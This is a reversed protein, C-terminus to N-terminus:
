AQEIVEVLAVADVAGLGGLVTPAVLLLSEDM